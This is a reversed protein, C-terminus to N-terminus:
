STNWGKYPKRQFKKKLWLYRVKQVMSAYQNRGSSNGAKGNSKRENTQMFLEVNETHSGYCDPCMARVKKKRSDQLPCDNIDYFVRKCYPNLCSMRDNQVM